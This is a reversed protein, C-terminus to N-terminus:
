DYFIEIDSHGLYRQTENCYNKLLKINEDAHKKARYHKTPEVYPCPGKGPSRSRASNERM